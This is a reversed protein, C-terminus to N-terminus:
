IFVNNSQGQKLSIGMTGAVWHEQSIHSFVSHPFFPMVLNTPTAQNMSASARLQQLEAM